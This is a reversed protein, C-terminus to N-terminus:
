LAVCNRYLPAQHCALALGLESDRDSGVLAPAPHLAVLATEAVLLELLILLDGGQGALVFHVELADFLPVDDCVGASHAGM